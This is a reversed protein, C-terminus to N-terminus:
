VFRTGIAQTFIHSCGLSGAQDTDFVIMERFRAANRHSGTLVQAIGPWQLDPFYWLWVYDRYCDLSRSQLMNFGSHTFHSWVGRTRVTLPHLCCTPHWRIDIATHIWQTQRTSRIKERDGLVSHYTGRTCNRITLDLHFLLPSSILCDKYNKERLHKIHKVHTKLLVEQFCISRGTAYSAGQQM